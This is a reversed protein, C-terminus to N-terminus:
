ENIPIKLKQGPKLMASELENIKKIQFIKKRLDTNEEYYRDAIKWLNDGQVVKVEILEPESSSISKFQFAVILLVSISVILLIKLIFAFKNKLSGFSFDKRNNKKNNIRHGTQSNNSLEYM